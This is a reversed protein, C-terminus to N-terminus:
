SVRFSKPMGIEVFKNLIKSKIRIEAEEYEPKRSKLQLTFIKKFRYMNVESLSRIHYGM